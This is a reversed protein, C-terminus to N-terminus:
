EEFGSKKMEQMAWEDQAKKLQEENLDRVKEHSGFYWEENINLAIEVDLQISNVEDFGGEYGNKFVVANPDLQKLQTILEKVTM